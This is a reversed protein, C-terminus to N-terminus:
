IPRTGETPQEPNFGYNGRLFQLVYWKMAAESTMYMDLQSTCVMLRGLIDLNAETRDAPAKKFWANVLDGRRDTLFGFHALCTEIFCARLNRRERAAGGGSFRFAIYNNGPVESVCADVLTFHYALRSNLNMYEDAVLLYSRDGLARMAGTQATLSTAMVSALDSLSAPMERTWTVDPHSVGRWFAQFPRSVIEEPKVEAALPNQVALGGGLDLVQLNVPTSSLLKRSIHPGRELESDGVEFMAEIAKEHCFRLVDHASKCGAPRFNAGSPDLLHLVLLREAIPDSSGKRYRTNEAPEVMRPEWLTGAYVRPQVADLSVPDGNHIQEFAGELQFVSPIKSERLLAAAHGALNGWEAVLGAIRPFVAVIEPSAKRLFLISGDPTKGLDRPDSVMHATGSVRGPFVSRGGILLPEQKVRSKSKAAEADGMVLARAQVIWLQGAEDLAWEVDQPAKFHEEIQLGWIALTELEHAALSPAAAEDPSLPRRTLGGGEQPIIEVEKRVINREVVYRPRKRSMVFLDAAGHGSAIDLALGRTATIWLADSEPNGPDRTYMIGSARAPIVRLCLVPIPTDIESLGASLRYFLARESFRAAVVRRYADVVQDQPVNILSLFQGAFTREGGEGVASSRVALGATPGRSFLTHAREALAVEIARPVPLAMVMEALRKSVDRLASLDNLDLNHTADRIKEWLPIGCFQRYAEATIVYGDPVPLGIRNKVEALAAAKGGAEATSAGDIEELWAAFNRAVLEQRAAIYREVENQQAHIAEHLQPFNIGTLRELAAVTAEAKSYVASIRSGVIDRRPLVFQLDEQIAAMLELCENNLSLLERFSQYRRRIRDEVAKAPEAPKKKSWWFM